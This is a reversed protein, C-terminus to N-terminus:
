SKTKRNKMIYYSDVVLPVVAGVSLINGVASGLLVNIQTVCAGGSTLLINGVANATTVNIASESVGANVSSIDGIANETTVSIVSICTSGSAISGVSNDTTAAIATICASAGYSFYNTVALDSVVKAYNAGYTELSTSPQAIVEPIMAVRAGMVDVTWGMSSTPIDYYEAPYLSGFIPTIASQITSLESNPYMYTQTVLPFSSHFSIGGAVAGGTDTIVAAKHAVISEMTSDTWHRNADYTPHAADWDSRWHGGRRGPPCIDPYFYFDLWDRADQAEPDETLLFEAFGKLAWNGPDEGAHNGAFVIFKEKPLGNPALGSGSSIKFAYYNCADISEALENVKVSSQGFVYDAGGYATVSDTEQIYTTPLTALWEGTLGEQWPTSTSYYVTDQTFPADNYFRFYLNDADYLCHDFKTWTRADYSWEPRYGGAINFPNDTAYLIIDTSTNHTTSTWFKVKFQPTKANVKDAAGYFTFQISKGPMWDNIMTRPVINLTPTLSSGNTVSSSSLLVNGRDEPSLISTPTTVSTIAASTNATTATIATSCSGSSSVSEIAGVTDATTANIGTISSGAVPTSFVSRRKSQLLTYPDANLLAHDIPSLSGDFLAIIEIMGDWTRAGDSPRNGIALNSTQTTPYAGATGAIYSSAVLQGNVYFVPNNATSTKDHTWSQNVWQNLSLSATPAWSPGGTQSSDLAVYSLRGSSLYCADIGNTSGTGSTDQYVRGLASGGTSSAYVRVFGSRFISSPAPIVPGTFYSNTNGTLTTGFGAAVGDITLPEAIGSGNLTYPFYGQNTVYGRSLMVHTLGREVWYPNLAIPVFPQRAKERHRFSM